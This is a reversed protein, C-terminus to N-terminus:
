MTVFMQVRGYLCDSTIHHLLLPTLRVHHRVVGQNIHVAFHPPPFISYLDQAIHSILHLEELVRMCVVHRM